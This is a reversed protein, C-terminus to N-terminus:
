EERADVTIAPLWLTSVPKYDLQKVLRDQMDAMHGAGYFLGVSELGARDKLVQKLDEIVIQNRKQIIVREFEDGALNAIQNGGEGLTTLMMKKMFFRTTANASIIGGIAEMFMKSNEGDGFAVSELFNFVANDDGFSKRLEGWSIDSNVWHPQDTLVRDAQSSLGLAKSITGYLDPSSAQNLDAFEIRIDADLAEGGAKGDAGHSILGVAKGDQLELQIPRGWADVKSALIMRTLTKDFLKQGHSTLEGLSEPYVGTHQEYRQSMAGILGIRRETRLRMAEGTGPKIGDHEPGRVGEFLVLDMGDLMAQASTYFTSDAIHVAGVLAVVPGGGDVPEYLRVALDLRTINPEVYTLRTWKGADSIAQEEAAASPASTALLMLCLSTFLPLTRLM